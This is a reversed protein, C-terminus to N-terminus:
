FDAIYEQPHLWALSAGTTCGTAARRSAGPHPCQSRRRRQDWFIENGVQVFEMGTVFVPYNWILM